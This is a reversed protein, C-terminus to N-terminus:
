LLGSQRRWQTLAQALIVEEKDSVTLFDWVLQKHRVVGLVPTNRQEFFREAQDVNRTEVVLGRSDFAAGPLSGGGMEGHTVVTPYDSASLELKRRFADIRGELTESAQCAKELHPLRQREDTEYIRTVEQLMAFTFKDPRFARMMPHKGLRTILDKRGAIIGAQCGGLLKDGSFCVLDAGQRLSESVLPERRWFDPANELLNGSGLDHVLLRTENKLSALEQLSPESVFGGQHFNSQHVVLLMGGEDPLANQYDTVSTINTTGVEVLRAGSQRLIDPIRFGGGIQVLQGRSVLVDQGAAFAFLVLLVAAANNNVVLADEAGSLRAIAERTGRGRGGRTQGILDYELNTYGGLTPVVRALLDDSWPARGLNTHLIIGTANVIRQLRSLRAHRLAREVLRQILKPVDTTPDNVLHSRAQEVVERALDVAWRHGFKGEFEHLDERNLLVDIKPLLRFPNTGNM